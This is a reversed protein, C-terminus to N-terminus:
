KFGLDDMLFLFFSIAYEFFLWSSKFQLKLEVLLPAYCLQWTGPIKYGDKVHVVGGEVDLRTSLLELCPLFGSVSQSIIYHRWILM